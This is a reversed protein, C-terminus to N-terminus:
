LTNGEHLRRKASLYATYAADTTDFTGLYFKRGRFTISAQFRHYHRHVGLIGTKNNAHARVQNQANISDTAERLNDWRNDDHITNRHDIEHNPWIRKMYFWALRHALYVKRHIGIRLYGDGCDSGAVSNAKRSGASRLWTFLGTDPDYYLIRKLEDHEIM